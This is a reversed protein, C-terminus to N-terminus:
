AADEKRGHRYALDVLTWGVGMLVFTALWRFWTPADMTLAVGSMAVSILGFFHLWGNPKIRPPRSM